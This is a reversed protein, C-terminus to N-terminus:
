VPDPVNGGSTKCNRPDRRGFWEAYKVEAFINPQCRKAMAKADDLTEGETMGVWRRDYFMDWFRM